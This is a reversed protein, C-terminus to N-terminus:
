DAFNTNNPIKLGLTLNNLQCCVKEKIWCFEKTSGFFYRIHKIKKLHSSNPIYKNILHNKTHILLHILM